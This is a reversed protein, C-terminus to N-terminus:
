EEGGGLAGIELGFPKTLNAALQDILDITPAIILTPENLLESALHSSRKEWNWHSAGGCRKQWYEVFSELGGGLIAQFQTQEQVLSHVDSCASIAMLPYPLHSM